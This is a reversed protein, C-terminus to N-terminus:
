TSLHSLHFCITWIGNCVNVRWIPIHSIVSAYMEAIKKYLASLVM